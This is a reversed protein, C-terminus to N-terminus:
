MSWVQLALQKDLLLARALRMCASDVGPGCEYPAITPFILTM